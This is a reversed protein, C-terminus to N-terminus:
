IGHKVEMGVIDELVKIMCQNDENPFKTIGAQFFQKATGTTMMPTGCEEALAMTITLDKYTNAINSGTGKFKRDLIAPIAGQFLPTNAVSTGIVSFLVDASVGAKVGLMMAEFMGSYICGVLGQMCAKVIQGQGVEEGVFNVNKAIASFVDACNDFDEKRGSAMLTLAGADAGKQGGSVPCDILTVHREKALAALKKVATCGITATVVIISGPKMTELLGDKGAIVATSQVANVVMVFVVDSAAGVAATDKCKKGGLRFLNELVDPNMDFGAVDFGKATLNKAMGMGMNGLGIIGVNKMIKGKTFYDDRRSTSPKHVVAM